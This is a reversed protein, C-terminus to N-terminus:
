VDEELRTYVKKCCLWYNVIVANKYPPATQPEVGFHLM